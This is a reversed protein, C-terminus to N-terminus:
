SKVVWREEGEMIEERSGEGGSMSIRTVDLNEVTKGFIEPLIEDLRVKVEGLDRLTLHVTTEDIEIIEEVMKKVDIMKGNRDILLEDNTKFVTSDYGNTDKIEYTYKVIGDNLSKARGSLMMISNALIGEPLTQNLQILADDRNFPPILEVDLYEKLGAIGVRLAPGFSVRPAPHFGGSYRFPFEARRMARMIASTLELHSLYRVEHTKAYQIRAKICADHRTEPFASETTVSSERNGAAREEEQKCQLGCNHCHKRCDRTRKGSYANEYERWLFKKSMGTSITDWPFVETEKYQRCAFDRVDIGTIEMAEEWKKFDFAETWPDLRCGLAWAQVTLEALREDGRAFAAELLSMEEQHGKYKIGNKVLKRRLYSNKEKLMGLEHQGCWQFPTHAKPVFSAVGVSINVRKGNLRKATKRAETVMDAIARIDEDTETPLGTMFYLKLNSWGERFLSELARHYDAATFDKNIVARLRETGAEPAITFGSKSVTRLERLLDSNVSAVRLSPLSASIRKHYFRRNFAQMLELLCPYDGASLSTFSISDYGTNKLTRDALEIVTDPSRERVPRYIMGAQCFRCGQSCGRAIEINVRDHIVHTFPVVPKDPFPADELSSIIRREIRRDREQSPVFVGEIDSLARLLVLKNGAGSEKWDHYVQLMEQIAEEGDGIFFADIFASMPFPNVACPGGAIILPSGKRQLREESRLPVGGLHLMNLVTTYSLEYQLSFGVIDFERLPRKSELSSLLINGRKMADELDIWPSFVREARAFPLENVIKYLIKLGLHSMGVEYIDPFALACTVTAKKRIANLENGM